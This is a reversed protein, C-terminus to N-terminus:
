MRITLILLMPLSLFTVVHQLYIKNNWFCLLIRTSITNTMFEYSIISQHSGRSRTKYRILMNLQMLCQEVLRGSYRHNPLLKCHGIRYSISKGLTKPVILWHTSKEHDNPQPFWPPQPLWPPQPFWPPQPPPRPPPQPPPRPPPHPPPRPPPQPPPLPIYRIISYICKCM